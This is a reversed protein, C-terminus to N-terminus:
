SIDKLNQLLRLNRKYLTASTPPCVAVESKFNRFTHATCTERLSSNIWALSVTSSREDTRSIVLPIKHTDNAPTNTTRTWISESHIRVHQNKLGPHLICNVVGCSQSQRPYYLICFQWNLVLEHKMSFLLIAAFQKSLDRKIYDTPYIVTQTKIPPWTERSFHSIQRNIIHANDDQLFVNFSPICLIVRILFKNVSVLLKAQLNSSHKLLAASFVDSAHPRTFTLFLFFHWSHLEWSQWSEGGKGYLREIAIVSGEQCLLSCGAASLNHLTCCTTSM